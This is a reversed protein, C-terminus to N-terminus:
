RIYISHTTPIFEFYNNSFHIEFSYEVEHIEEMKTINAKYMNFSIVDKVKRGAPVNALSAMGVAWGNVCTGNDMLFIESDRNNIIVVEIDMVINEPSYETIRYNGTQYMQVGDQDIIMFNGSAKRLVLEARASDIINLIDQDSMSSWDTNIAFASTEPILFLLLLLIALLKKM